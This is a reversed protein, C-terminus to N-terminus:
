EIPKTGKCATYGTCGWFEGKASRRRRMTQQCQPCPPSSESNRQEERAELRRTIHRESLGGIEEFDKGQAVIHSKLM